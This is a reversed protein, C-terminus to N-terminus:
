IVARTLRGDKTKQLPESGRVLLDGQYPPIEV